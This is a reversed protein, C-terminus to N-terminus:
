PSPSKSAVCCAADSRRLWIEERWDAAAALVWTTVASTDPVKEPTTSPYSDRRVGSLRSVM